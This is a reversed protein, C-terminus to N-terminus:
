MSSIEPLFSLAAAWNQESRIKINVSKSEQKGEEELHEVQVRTWLRHHKDQVGEQWRFKGAHAQQRSFQLRRADHATPSM